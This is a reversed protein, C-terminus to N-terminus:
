LLKLYRLMFISSRQFMPLWFYKSDKMADLIFTDKWARYGVFGTGPIAEYHLASIIAQIYLLLFADVIKLRNNLPRVLRKNAEILSFSEIIEIFAFAKETRFIESKKNSIFYRMLISALTCILVFVVVSSLIFRFSETLILQKVDQLHIIVEIIKSMNSM